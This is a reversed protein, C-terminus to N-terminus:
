WATKNECMSKAYKVGIFADLVIITAFMGGDKWEMDKECSGEMAARLAIILAERLESRASINM